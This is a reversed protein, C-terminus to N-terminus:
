RVVDCIPLKNTPTVQRLQCVVDYRGPTPCGEGVEAFKPPLWKDTVRDFGQNDLVCRRSCFGKVPSNSIGRRSALMAVAESNCYGHGSEVCSDTWGERTFDVQVVVTCPITGDSPSLVGGGDSPLSGIGSDAPLVPSSVEGGDSVQGEPSDNGDCGIVLLAFIAAKFM